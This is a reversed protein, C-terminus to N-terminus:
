AIKRRKTKYDYGQLRCLYEVADQYSCETVHRVFDISDMGKGDNCCHCLYRDHDGNHYISASPHKDDHELLICCFSSPNDVHLWTAMDISRAINRAENKDTITKRLEPGNSTNLRRIDTIIESPKSCTSTKNDFSVVKKSSKQTNKSEVTPYKNLYRDCSSTISDAYIDLIAEFDEVGHRVPNGKIAKVEFPSLGEDAKIWMTGPYRMVRSADRVMKDAISIIDILKLEIRNWEEASINMGCAWYIHYGNRTEVILTPTAKDLATLVTECMYQKRARVENDDFYRGHEDRGADIDIFWSRFETIDKNSPKKDFYKESGNVLYYIDTDMSVPSAIMGINKKYTMPEKGRLIYENFIDIPNPSTDENDKILSPQNSKTDSSTIRGEELAVLYALDRRAMDTLYPSISEHFLKYTSPSIGCDKMGFFPNIVFHRYTKSKDRVDNEEIEAIIKKAVLKDYFKKFTGRNGIDLFEMLQEYGDIPVQHHSNTDWRCVVNNNNINHILLFTRGIDTINGEFLEYFNVREFFRVANTRHWIKYKGTKENWYKVTKTYIAKGFRNEEYCHNNNM